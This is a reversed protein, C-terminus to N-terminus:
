WCWRATAWRQCPSSSCCLWRRRPWLRRRGARGRGGGGGRQVRVAAAAEVGGDRPEPPAAVARAVLRVALLEDPFTRPAPLPPCPPPPSPSTAGSASSDTTSLAASPRARHPHPEPRGQSPRGRQWPGSPAEGDEKFAATGAPVAAEPAGKTPRQQAQHEPQPARGVRVDQRETCLSTHDQKYSLSFPGTTAHPDKRRQLLHSIPLGRHHSIHTDRDHLAVPTFGM